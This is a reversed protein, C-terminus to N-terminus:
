SLFSGIAERIQRETVPGYFIQSILGSPTVVFTTPVGRLSYLSEIEHGADLLIDFTLREKNVWDLVFAEREGLNIALVRLGNAQYDEFITQLIAMESKCPECWTAWFNIIVPNGRLETLNISEGSLLRGQFPPAFSNPEPAIARQSIVLPNTCGTREPLGANVLLVLAAIFALGASTALFLRRM